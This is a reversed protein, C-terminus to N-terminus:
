HDRGRVGHVPGTQANKANNAGGTHGVFLDDRNDVDGCAQQTAGETQATIGTAKQRPVSRRQRLAHGVLGFVTGQVRLRPLIRAISGLGVTGHFRASTATDDARQPFRASRPATPILNRLVPQSLIDVHGNPGPAGVQGFLHPSADKPGKFANQADGSGRHPPPM